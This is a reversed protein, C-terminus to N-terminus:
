MILNHSIAFIMTILVIFLSIYKLSIILENYVIRSIAISTITILILSLNYYYSLIRCKNINQVYYNTYISGLKTVHSILFVMTIASAAFTVLALTLIAKYADLRSRILEDLRNMQYLYKEALSLVQQVRGGSSLAVVISRYASVVDRPINKFVIMMSEESRHGLKILEVFKILYSKTPEGVFNAANEIANLIPTGARVYSAIIPIVIPTHIRLLKRKNAVDKFMIYIFLSISSYLLGIIIYADSTKYVLIPIIYFSVEIYINEFGKFLKLKFISSIGYLLSLSILVFFISIMTAVFIKSSTRSLRIVM